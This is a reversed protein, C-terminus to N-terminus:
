TEKWDGSHSVMARGAEIWDAEDREREERGGMESQEEGQGRRQSVPAPPASTCWWLPLRTSQFAM